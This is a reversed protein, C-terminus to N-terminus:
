IINRHMETHHLTTEITLLISVHASAEPENDLNLVVKRVQSHSLLLNIRSDYAREVRKRLHACVPLTLGTSSSTYSNFVIDDIHKRVLVYGAM